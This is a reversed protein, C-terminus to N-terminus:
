LGRERLFREADKVRLKGSILRPLLADRLGALTRSERRCELARTLLSEALRDFAMAVHPPPVFTALSLISEVQARQHSKSTGTVLSQLQQRFLPSRALCYVFSRTFPSRARLVLFETSCVAHEGPRVDVLWVREIEPNLKSLLVVGPPVHWKQSRIAEGYETKPWQGEDFAPISFHQYLTQPSSLPNEQDRLHEVVDGLTGVRWGEPIEGLESDVLRAPFLDYLHAPLGPQIPARGHARVGRQWRPRGDLDGRCKARVPEFDVFWAKFLARAMQELTQSMRQNLEIKDDLTGLIHAIARQEPLPPLIIRFKRLSELARAINPVGTTSAYSLIEHQGRDSRFYYFVYLPDALKTNVTVKILNPSLVYKDYTQAPVFGVSGISGRATFVIDGPFALSSRLEHAKEESIYVYDSDVFRPGALNIGRIVPVGFTRYESAKVNSGFPGSATREAIEQITVERWEGAM